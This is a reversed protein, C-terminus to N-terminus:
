GYVQFPHSGSRHGAAWRTNIAGARAARTERVVGLNSKRGRGCGVVRESLPTSSASAIRTADDRNSVRSGRAHSGTKTEGKLRADIM